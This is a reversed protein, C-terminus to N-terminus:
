KFDNSSLLKSLVYNLLYVFHVPFNVSSKKSSLLLAATIHMNKTQICTTINTVNIDLWPFIFLVM